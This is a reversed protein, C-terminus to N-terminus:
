RWIRNIRGIFGTPRTRAGPDFSRDRDPKPGRFNEISSPLILHARLGFFGGGSFAGEPMAALGILGPPGLLQIKLHQMLM